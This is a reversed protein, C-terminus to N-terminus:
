RPPVHARSVLDRGVREFPSAEAELGALAFAADIFPGERYARSDVFCAPPEAHVVEVTSGSVTVSISGCGRLVAAYLYRLVAVASGVEDGASARLIGRAISGLPPKQLERLMNALSERRYRPGLARATADALAVADAAPIWTFPLAASVRALVGAPVTPDAGEVVGLGLAARNRLVLRAWLARVEPPGSAGPSPAEIAGRQGPPAPAISASPPRRAGEARLYGRAPVGLAREFAVNMAEVKGFGAEIAVALLKTEGAELLARARVVREGALVERFTIGRDQLLRQLARTSTGVARACRDLRASRLDARVAARVEALWAPAAASAVLAEWAEWTAAPQSCGVFELAEPGVTFARQALTDQALMAYGLAAAAGSRDSMLLATRHGGRARITQMAVFAFLLEYQGAGVDSLARLDLLTRSSEGAEGRARSLAVLDDAAAETLAGRVGIIQVGERDVAAVLVDSAYARAGEDDLYVDLSPLRPFGTGQAIAGTPGQVPPIM